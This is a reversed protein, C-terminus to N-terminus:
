FVLKIDLATSFGRSFTPWLARHMLYGIDFQFFGFHLGFGVATTFGWKGGFSMGSRLPLFPLAYYQAGLALQGQDSYGMTNDFAQELDLNLTLTEILRYSAAVHLVVPLRTTFDDVAISTDESTPELDEPDEFQTSDVELRVYQEEPNKNWNISGIVNHLGISLTLKKEIVGAAGIDMGFGSGGEAIRSRVSVNSHISNKGTYFAGESDLVEAVALGRFYNLNMGVSFTDFYRRIKFPYSGSFSAKVAAFGGGDIDDFSYEKRINGELFLEFPAKPVTGRVRSVLQVSFGYNDIALGLVNASVDSNASLGDDPILNLIEEIDETEWEGHHGSQTFYREYKNISLSSNALWMNLGIFNIEIWHDRPLGLNASNWAIADVGRAIAGYAGALSLGTADYSQAFLPFNLCIVALLSLYIIKKM